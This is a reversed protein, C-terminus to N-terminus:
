PYYIFNTRYVGSDLGTKYNVVLISLINNGEPIQLPEVYKESLRTPDTGDWTYYISCGPEAEITVLTEETIRGGDPTVVPYEPPKVDIVFTAEAVESVIGKENCCVAKILYEGAKELKIGDSDRYYIGKEPDPTTGDLTYYIDDQEMSFLVVTVYEEYVGEIPSVIPATVLYDTFLKLLEPDRMGDALELISDYDKKEDYIRILNEYAERNKKDLGIVEIYLVMASDYDKQKMHIGAMEMRVPIDQPQISLATKYYKLANVYNFDASEKEAMAVQYDYSNANRHDIYLKVGIGAILAVALICCTIIIHIKKNKKKKEPPDQKTKASGPKKKNEEKLLLRLYDDELVGYDPVIQAEHGCVSCYFCGEKLEAGCKVCKM